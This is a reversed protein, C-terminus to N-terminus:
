DNEVAKTVTQALYVTKIIDTKKVSMRTPQYPSRFTLQQHWIKGTFLVRVREWFSLAWCTSVAGEDGVHAPLTNYEPQDKAIEITQDKFSIAKM